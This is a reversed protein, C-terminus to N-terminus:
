FGELAKRYAKNGIILGSFILRAVLKEFPYMCVPRVDQLSPSFVQFPTRLPDTPSKELLFNHQQKKKTPFIGKSPYICFKHNLIVVNQLVRLYETGRQVIRFKRRPWPSGPAFTSLFESIELFLQIYNVESFQQVM